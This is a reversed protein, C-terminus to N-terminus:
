QATALLFPGGHNRDLLARVLHLGKEQRACEWLYRFKQGQNEILRLPFVSFFNEPRPTNAVDSIWAPVVMSM